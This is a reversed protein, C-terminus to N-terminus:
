IKMWFCHYKHGSMTGPLRLLSFGIRLYFDKVGYEYFSCVTLYKKNKRCALNKAFEVLKRGIGFSQNEKLVALTEILLYDYSDKVCLIGIINGNEEAVFYNGQRIQDSIFKGTHWYFGRIDLFLIQAIRLVSPYDLMKAKRINM